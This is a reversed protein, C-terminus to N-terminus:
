DEIKSRLDNLIEPKLTKPARDDLLWTKAYHTESIKFMPPEYVRDVELAFDSRLSFADGKIKKFLSPPSGKISYLDKGKEGLQPLSSLLAWTYPHKPDHFIEDTKGFEIIQGSYMVAIRDALKAVVGLDHTIFIVTFRYEEQLEKILDLIQAQITVDLATTPEDCILIKPRCALAIAIVVRQRMGGSYQGPIDKYRREADPIGVKKLLEIAEKKAKKKSMKIKKRLVESIQFGVSLLPNLSTMPDQFITSITKGRLNRIDKLAKFKKFINISKITNWVKFIKDLDLTKNNFLNIIYNEILIELEFNYTKSAYYCIFSNFSKNKYFMLEKEDIVLKKSLLTYKEILIKLSSKSFEETFIEEYFEIFTNKIYLSQNEIFTKNKVNKLLLKLHNLKFFIILSDINLVLNSRNLLKLFRIIKFLNYKDFLSPGKIKRKNSSLQFYDYEIDDNKKNRYEINNIYKLEDKLIDIKDKYIKISSKKSFDLGLKNNSNILNELKSQFYNIKKNLKIENLKKLKNKYKRNLKIEKNFSKTVAKITYKDIINKQLRVLDIPEKFYSENTTKSEENPFYIISGDSIYGNMELMGTFTKTIVSKGSGSEGVIALIEQDYVDLSVNRIATLINKRIRFKVEVNNLSLIKNKM